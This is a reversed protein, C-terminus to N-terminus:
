GERRVHTVGNKKEFYFTTKELGECITPNQEIILFGVDKSLNAIAERAEIVTNSSLAFFSEDFIILKIARPNSSTLVYRMLTTMLIRVAGGERVNISQGHRDVVEATVGDYKLKAGQMDSDPVMRGAAAIATDLDERNIRELDTVYQSVEKYIESLRNITVILTDKENYLYSLRENIEKIKKANEMGITYREKCKAMSTLLADRISAVDQQQIESM